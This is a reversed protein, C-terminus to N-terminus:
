GARRATRYVSFAGGLAAYAAAATAFWLRNPLVVFVGLVTVLMVLAHWPTGTPRLFFQLFLGSFAVLEALTVLYPSRGLWPGRRILM